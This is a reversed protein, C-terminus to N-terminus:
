NKQMDLYERYERQKRVKEEQQKQESDGIQKLGGAILTQAPDAM